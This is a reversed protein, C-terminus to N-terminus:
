YAGRGKLVVPITRWLIIFDLGLSWNNIYWTDWRAWHKFSLDSRGSIQALGTIGPKINLRSIYKNEVRESEDVPFPRPGILSMDGKLVNMLQPLEDLSNRRLFKGVLTVRPDKRMKFIPGDVESKMRLEEKYRDASEIMSRFKYFNFIAGKKGCRKSIYFVSGPSEFKILLSIIVFLPFLFILLLGAVVVDFFGKFFQESGHLDKELYTIMPIFGLYNLGVKRYPMDFHEAVIRVAKHLKAGKLIIDSSIKRESPITVYIEDIYHKKVVEDLDAIKGIVKYGNIASTKSDDLFGVIRIGLYSNNRIQEALGLGIKGAGVIVVNYNSYGKEVLHRVYIRKITRWLSIVVLLFLTSEIFVLRSFIDIKFGFILLAALISSFLVCKTVQWSEQLISLSRDTSYLHHNNLLFVLTVAWLSFVPPYAKFGSFDRPVSDPNFQYAVYFATGILLIDILLYVIRVKRRNQYM